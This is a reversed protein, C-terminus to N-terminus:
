FYPSNVKDISERVKDLTPDSQQASRLEEQSFAKCSLKTQVEQGALLPSNHEASVRHRPEILPPSRVEDQPSPNPEDGPSM